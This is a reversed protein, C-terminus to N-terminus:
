IESQSRSVGFVDLIKDRNNPSLYNAIKLLTKIRDEINEIRSVTKIAKILYEEDLHYAIAQLLHAKIRDEGGFIRGNCFCGSVEPFYPALATMAKLYDTESEFAQAVRYILKRNDEGARLRSEWKSKDEDSIYSNERIEIINFELPFYEPLANALASLVPDRREYKIIARAAKIAKPLLDPTIRPALMELMFAQEFDKESGIGRNLNHLKTELPENYIDIVKDLAHCILEQPIASVFERTTQVRIDEDRVNGIFTRGGDISLVADWAFPFLEPLYPLFHILIGARISQINIWQESKNFSFALELILPL